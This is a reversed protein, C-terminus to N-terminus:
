ILCGIGLDEFNDDENDSLLSFFDEDDYQGEIVVHAEDLFDRPVMVAIQNINAAERKLTAPVHNINLLALFLEAEEQNDTVKVAICDQSGQTQERINIKKNSSAM